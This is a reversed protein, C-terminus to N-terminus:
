KKVGNKVALFRQDANQHYRYNNSVLQSNTTTASVGGRRNDQKKVLYHIIEKELKSHTSDGGENVNMMTSLDPHNHHHNDIQECDYRLTSRYRGLGRIDSATNCRRESNLQKQNMYSHSSIASFSDRQHPNYHTAYTSRQQQPILTEGVEMLPCRPSIDLIGGATFTEIQEHNYLQSNQMVPRLQLLKHSLENKDSISEQFQSINNTKNSEQPM